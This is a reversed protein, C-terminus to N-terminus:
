SGVCERTPGWAVSPSFDPKIAPAAEAILRKEQDAFYRNAKQSTAAKAAKERVIEAVAEVQDEDAYSSVKLLASQNDDLGAAKAAEKAEPSIGAIKVAREVNKLM